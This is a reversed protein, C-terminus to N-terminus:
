TSRIRLEYGRATKSIKEIRLHEFSKYLSVWTGDATLMRLSLTDSAVVQLEIKPGVRIRAASKGAAAAKELARTLHDLAATLEPPTPRKRRELIRTMDERLERRWRREVRARFRYTLIFFAFLLVCFTFALAIVWELRFVQM